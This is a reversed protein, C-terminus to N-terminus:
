AFNKICCRKLIISEIFEVPSSKSTFEFKSVVHDLVFRQASSLKIIKFYPRYKRLAQLKLMKSTIASSVESKMSTILSKKDRSRVVGQEIMSQVIKHPPYRMEVTVSIDRQSVLDEELMEIVPSFDFNGHTQLILKKM